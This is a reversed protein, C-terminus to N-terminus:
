IGPKECFATLWKIPGSPRKSVRTRLDLLRFGNSELLDILMQESYYQFIRGGLGEGTDDYELTEGAKVSVFMLGSPRLVRFSEAIAEDAGMKNPLLPLHLLAANNRIVDISADGFEALNKMDAEIISNEPLVGEAVLTNLIQIFVPSNDIGIARVDSFQALYKLDRGHGTGVDLLTIKRDDGGLREEVVRERAMQLLEDMLTADRENPWLARVEAYKEATHNYTSRTLGILREMVLAVEQNYPSLYESPLTSFMAALSKMEEILLAPDLTNKRVEHEELTSLCVRIEKGDSLRKTRNDRGKFGWYAYEGPDSRFFFLPTHRADVGTESETFERAAVFATYVPKNLGGQFMEHIRCGKVLVADCKEIVGIVEKSLKQLNAVAMRPGNNSIHLRGTSVVEKLGDLISYSLMELVDEYAADNSHRGSKPILNIKLRKNTKLLKEIVLLDFWTEIYDDTFWTLEFDNDLLVENAFQEWYDIYIDHSAVDQLESFILDALLHTDSERVESLRIGGYVFASAASLSGKLDLGTLGSAISIKLLDKIDKDDLLFHEIIFPIVRKALENFTRHTYFQYDPNGTLCFAIATEIIDPLEQNYINHAVTLGNLPYNVFFLFQEKIFDAVSQINYFVAEGETELRGLQALIVSNLFKGFDRESESLFQPNSMRDFITFSDPKFNESSLIRATDKGCFDGRLLEFLYIDVNNEQDIRYLESLYKVDLM